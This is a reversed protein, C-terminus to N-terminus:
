QFLTLGQMIASAIQSIKSAKEINDPMLNKSLTDLELGLKELNSKLIEEEGVFGGHRHLDMAKASIHIRARNGIMYTVKILDLDQFQDLILKVNLPEIGYDIKSDRYDLDFSPSNASLLVVLVKDKIEPTIIIM